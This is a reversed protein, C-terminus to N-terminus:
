LLGISWSTQSRSRFTRCGAFCFVWVDFVYLLYMLSYVSSTHKKSQNKSIHSQQCVRTYVQSVLNYFNFPFNSFCFRYFFSLTISLLFFGAVQDNSMWQRWEDVVKYGMSNTWAESGTYPVIRDHYGSCLNM